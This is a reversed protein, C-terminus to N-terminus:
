SSQCSNLTCMISVLSEFLNLGNLFQFYFSFNLFSFSLFVKRTDLSRALVCDRLWGCIYIYIYIPLSTNVYM